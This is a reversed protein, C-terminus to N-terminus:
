QSPATVDRATPPSVRHLELEIRRVGTFPHEFDFRMPEPISIRCLITEATWTFADENVFISADFVGADPEYNGGSTVTEDFRCQGDAFSEPGARREEWAWRMDRIADADLRLSPQVFLNKTGPAMLVAELTINELNTTVSSFYTDRRVQTPKGPMCPNSMGRENLAETRDSAVLSGGLTCTINTYAPIFLNEPSIEVRASQVSATLVVESVRTRSFKAEASPTIDNYLGSVTVRVTGFWEPACEKLVQDVSLDEGCRTDTSDVGLGLLQRQRLVGLVTDILRTDGGQKRCCEMAQQQCRAGGACFLEYVAPNVTDGAGLLQRQREFGLVWPLLTRTTACKQAAAPVRPKLQQDFFTQRDALVRMLAGTGEDESAVGLLQSQREAGLAAAEAQVLPQHLDELQEELKRAEKEDDPYCGAMDSLPTVMRLAPRAPPKTGAQTQLEALTFLGCGYSQLQEVLVRVRNTGANATVVDPVLHFRSGRNDFAFSTVQRASINTPFDMQLFVPATMLLGEPELQVGAMLGAQNPMGGSNRLVRLTVLTPEAVANTPFSMRFEPGGPVSLQLVSEREPVVVVGSALDESTEPVVTPFYRDGGASEQVGRYYTWPAAGSGRDVVSVEGNLIGGAGVTRWHVLNTSSEIRYQAGADGQLRVTVHEGSIELPLLRPPASRVSATGLVALIIKVFIASRPLAFTMM